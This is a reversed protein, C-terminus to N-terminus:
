EYNQGYDRRVQTRENREFTAPERGRIQIVEVSANDVAIVPQLVQELEFRGFDDDAVFFAHQLFGDIGQKVVAAMAASDGPGTIASQLGEAIHELAFTATEALVEQAFADIIRATRHDDDARLELQVLATKGLFHREHQELRENNAPKLFKAIDM